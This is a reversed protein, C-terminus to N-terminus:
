SPRVILSGDAAFRRVSPGAGAPDGLTAVLEGAAAAAGQAAPGLSLFGQHAAQAYTFANLLRGERHVLFNAMGIRCQAAQFTRGDAEHLQIARRFHRAAEDIDNMIECIEGLRHHLGACTPNGPSMLGLARVFHDRAQITAVRGASPMTVVIRGSTVGIGGEDILRRVNEEAIRLARNAHLVGVNAYATALTDTDLGVALRLAENLFGEALRESREDNRHLHLGGLRQLARVELPGDGARHAYDVARRISAEDGQKEGDDSLRLLDIAANRLDARGPDAGIEAARLERLRVAEAADGDRDALQARYDLLLMQLGKDRLAFREPERDFAAIVTRVMALWEPVTREDLHLMKLAQLPGFVEAARGQALAARWAEGFNRRELAIVNLAARRGGEVAWFLGHGQGDRIRVVARAVAERAAGDAWSDYAAWLHPVLLPHILYTAAGAPELFGAGALRDLLQRVQAHVPPPDLPPLKGALAEVLLVLPAVGVAGDFQTLLSVQRRQPETLADRVTAAIVEHIAALALDAESGAGAIGARHDAVYARVAEADVPRSLVQGLMARLVLPNGGSADAVPRLIEPDVPRGSHAVTATCILWRAADDLPRMALRPAAADAWPAPDRSVVLVKTGAAVARGVAERAAAAGTAPLVQADDYIWLGPEGPGDSTSFTVPGADAVTTAYWRAFEQALTTKGSGAPGHLVVLPDALLARDLMMITEDLGPLRDDAAPAAEEEATGPGPVLRVPHREYLVPVLWDDVVLTDRAAMARRAVTVAESLETGRALRDYLVGVFAAASSVYVDYRMAVVASVGAALVDRALSGYAPLRGAAAYDSRCANLVLMPVGASALLEGLERGDVLRSNDPSAPDEFEVYGRAEGGPGGFRGHGDFHVLHYPDARGAAARLTAALTDFTPPRLVELRIADDRANVARALPAAVSRFPVDGTIAPRCIVLLVRAREPLDWATAAGPHEATTYVLSRCALALPGGGPARLLEIPVPLADNLGLDIEVRLDALHAAVDDWLRRGEASGFCAAFLVDGLRTVMARTERALVPGPDGPDDPFDELFWRLDERDHESFPVDPVPVTVSRVVESGAHLTIRIGTGGEAARDAEWRLLYARTEVM